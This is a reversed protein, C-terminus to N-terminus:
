IFPNHTLISPVSHKQMLERVKKLYLSLSARTLLMSIDLIYISTPPQDRNKDDDDEVIKQQPQPQPQVLYLKVVDIWEFVKRDTDEKKWTLVRFGSPFYTALVADCDSQLRSHITPVILTAHILHSLLFVLKSFLEDQPDALAESLNLKQVAQEVKIVGALLEETKKSKVKV